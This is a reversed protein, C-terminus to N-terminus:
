LLRDFVRAYTFLTLCGSMKSGIRSGAQGVRDVREAKWCGLPGVEVRFPVDGSVADDYAYCTWEGDVPGECTDEFSIFGGVSYQLTEGGFGLIPAPRAAFVGIV